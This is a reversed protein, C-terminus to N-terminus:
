KRMYSKGSFDCTHPLLVLIKLCHKEESYGEVWQTIVEDSHFWLLKGKEGKEQNVTKLNYMYPDCNKYFSALCVCVCVCM